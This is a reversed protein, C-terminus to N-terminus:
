LFCFSSLGSEEIWQYQKLAGNVLYNEPLTTEFWDLPEMSSTQLAAKRFAAKLDKKMEETIVGPKASVFLPTGSDALLNLFRRNYEWPINETIGVCDADIDFFAQHQALRFALTNVGMMATRDFSYGSTDDGSRHLQIFGAALHGIVNCGILIAGNANDYLTKYLAKICEASTRSRDHLTWGKKKLMDKGEPFFAGYFDYTAFDYKVLEYGWDTVRRIDEGILELVEPVSPDLANRDRFSRLNDPLFMENTELPRIWIGPRVNKAKMKAALGKMDPFRNNGREYPRGAAGKTLALEQWCDDIVMFPRNTLGETLEALLDSDSLIEQESSNGYAYYWNNSGYVPTKPLIPDECLSQCFRKAFSFANEQDKSHECVITALETKKGNLIVGQVGSRVDLWLSIGQSDCMWFCMANPRVMVGIGASETKDSILFYWPMVRHPNLHRWEFNGYGREFADGLYYDEGSLKVQYRLMLFRVPTQGATMMIETGSPIQQFSVCVDDHRFIGNKHEALVSKEETVVRVYDPTQLCLKKM